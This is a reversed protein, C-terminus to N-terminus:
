VLTWPGRYPRCLRASADPADLITETAPNWRLTSRGTRFAINALHAVAAARHSTEPPCIVPTGKLIGDIFNGTHWPNRRDIVFSQSPIPARRLRSDSFESVGRDVHAWGQDGEIRLGSRFATSVQIVQGSAYHTSFAYKDVTDYLPDQHFTAAAHHLAVPGTHDVGLAWSAIDYHHGIWDSLQGGSYDSIWRFHFHCRENYYPAEPAPGLWMDYDLYEPVSQPALPATMKPRDPKGAPLGVEVKSICGFFGNRALEVVRQFESSSRQQSGVQCVIGAQEIARVMARGEPITLAFPKELYIHLGRRAASIVPIAHWHDPTAIVVADLDRALLDRFDTTQYAPGAPTTSDSAYRKNVREAAKRLRDRDVDCLATVRVGPHDLFGGLVGNGQGGLGIFGVQLLASPAPASPDRGLVRSPLVLPALAAAALTKQLFARRLM